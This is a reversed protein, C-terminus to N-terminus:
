VHRQTYFTTPYVTKSHPELSSIHSLAHVNQAIEFLIRSLVCSRTEVYLATFPHYKKEKKEYLVTLQCHCTAKCVFFTM